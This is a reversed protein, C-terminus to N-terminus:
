ANIRKCLCSNSHDRLAEYFDLPALSSRALNACSEPLLIRPIKEIESLYLIQRLAMKKRREELTMIGPLVIAVGIQESENGVHLLVHQVKKDLTLSENKNTAFSVRTLPKSLVPCLRPQWTYGQHIRIQVSSDVEVSIEEECRRSYILHIMGVAKSTFTIKDVIDGECGGTRNVQAKLHDSFCVPAGCAGAAAFFRCFFYDSHFGRWLPQLERRVFSLDDQQNHWHLNKWQSFRNGFASANCVSSMSLRDDALVFGLSKMSSMVKSCPFQGEYLHMAGPNTVELIVYRVQTVAAGASQVVIHDVGQADVKLRAVTRNVLWETLVQELTVCPVTRKEQLKVCREGMWNAWDHGKGEARIKQNEEIFREKFPLLSSCGDTPSVHFTAAPGACTDVAFPLALARPHQLGLAGFKWSKDSLLDAYKDLLPEFSVLFWDNWEQLLDGLLDRDLEYNNTGVELFFLQPEAALHQWNREFPLHAVQQHGSTPPGLEGWLGWLFRM